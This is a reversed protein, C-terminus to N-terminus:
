KRFKSWLPEELNGWGLGLYTEEIEIHNQINLALREIEKDGVNSFSLRLFRPVDEVTDDIVQMLWTRNDKPLMYPLMQIALSFTEGEGLKLLRDAM